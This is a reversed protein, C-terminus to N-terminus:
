ALVVLTALVGTMVLTLAGAGPTIPRREKGITSITALSALAFWVLLVYKPWTM